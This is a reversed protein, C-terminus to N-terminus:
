SNLLSWEYALDADRFAIINEFQLFVFESQHPRLFVFDGVELNTDDSANVMIQNTSKGFIPNGKVGQPEWYDAMWAGGYIYYSNRMNADWLNLLGKMKELSALNSNKYKKLVPTAIYSAPKFSELTDIDFDTPKVAFSGAALDNLPSDGQNHLAITPSGAGNFTLNEHWMSPFKTRVLNKCANYFDRMQNFAEARPLLFSPVKVIHPDYGMFGSFQVYEKNQAIFQLGKELAVLNDFGGRHLGVDLEINLLLQISQQKALTIYEQIREETDVLWQLQKAPEFGNNTQLTQYYFAATQVPMPKGMLIDITSDSSQSIKSLFPQHFLMLRKTGSKQMTYEVLEKSPISKVVIRFHAKQPVLKKVEAINHDVADLDILLSPIARKYQKLSNNLHVFSPSYNGSKTKPKALYLGGAGALFTFGLAKGTNKFFKRRKM